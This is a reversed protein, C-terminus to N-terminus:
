GAAVLHEVDFGLLRIGRISRNNFPPRVPDGWGLLEMVCAEGFGSLKYGGYVCDYAREIADGSGSLLYDVTRVVADLTNKSKFDISLRELGSLNQGINKSVFRLRELFAHCGTLHKFLDEFNLRTLENTDCLYTQINVINEIENSAHYMDGKVTDDTSQWIQVYHAIRKARENPDVLLTTERWSDGSGQTLRLWGLFRGMEIQPDHGVYESRGFGNQQAVELIENHAPVLIEDYKRRFQQIFTRERSKKESGVVISTPAAHKVFGHIFREFADEHQPKDISKFANEYKRLVDENLVDADNWLEDYLSPLISFTDDRDQRILVSLERNAKLGNETLNASGILAVNDIIYLKTHFKADTFYRVKVLPNEFAARLAAPTTIPSFRIILRVECGQETLTNIPENTTFFPAALLALKPRPGANSFFNFTYDTSKTNSYLEALAMAQGV